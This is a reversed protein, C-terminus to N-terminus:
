DSGGVKVIKNYLGLLMFSPAWQGVFLSLEEKDKAQLVASLAM